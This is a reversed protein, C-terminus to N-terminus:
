FDLAFVLLLLALLSFAVSFACLCLSPLNYQVFGALNKSPIHGM